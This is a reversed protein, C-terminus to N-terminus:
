WKKLCGWHKSRMRGPYLESIIKLSLVLLGHFGQENDSILLTYLSEGLLEFYFGRYWFFVNTTEVYHQLFILFHYFFILFTCSCSNLDQYVKFFHQYSVSCKQGDLETSDPISQPETWDVKEDRIKGRSSFESILIVFVNSLIQITSKNQTIINWMKRGSKWLWSNGM